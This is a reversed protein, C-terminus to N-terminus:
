KSDEEGSVSGGEAGQEAPDDRLLPSLEARQFEAECRCRGKHNESLMETRSGPTEPSMEATYRANTM